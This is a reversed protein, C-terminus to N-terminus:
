DNPSTSILHTVMLKASTVRYNAGPVKWADPLPMRALLRLETPKKNLNGFMFLIKGDDKLRTTYDGINLPAGFADYKVEVLPPMWEANLVHDMVLYHESSAKVSLGGLGAAWEGKLAGSLFRPTIQTVTAVGRVAGYEDTLNVIMGNDYVGDMPLPVPAAFDQVQYGYASDIGYYYQGDKENLMPSPSLCATGFLNDDCMVDATSFVHKPSIYSVIGASAEAAGFSFLALLTAATLRATRFTKM